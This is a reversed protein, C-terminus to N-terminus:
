LLKKAIELRISDFWECAENFGDISNEFRSEAIKDMDYKWQIVAVLSGKDEGDLDTILMLNLGEIDVQSFYWAEGNQTHSSYDKMKDKTKNIIKM